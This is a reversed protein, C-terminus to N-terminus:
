STPGGADGRPARGRTATDRLATAFADAGAKRRETFSARNWAEWRVDFAVPAGGGGTGGAGAVAVGIRDVAVPTPRGGVPVVAVRSSPDGLGLLGWPLRLTLRALGDAAPPALAWTALTDGTRGTLAGADDARVLNGVELLEAGRAPAAGRAPYPRNLTLRQLAWGDADPRPLAAPPLGDLRLPDLESRVLAAATGAAPDVRVLVDFRPDAGLGPVARGGPVVDFGLVVPAPLEGLHDLRLHVWSADHDLVIRTFGADAEHVTREGVRAPDHALLGFFQENTLVDHWLARREPDAVAHRPLTNWTFKFWEDTWAFLLGGALGLEAFSALMAADTSMAETETHNGQDRGNTGVHASGLSSPVGFETVMLPMGAHHRVLDRVYALYPDASGGGAAPRVYSPQLRQFDPYYPYAHYSAFTGGPWATHARVHNADVGVLDERDLPEDPHSLPDTTPWNVLAIPVSLGHRAEHGALEDMRAAVWRETPSADPASSFYTGRHAPRAANRADSAATAVPDWEVGVIWAAVWPSVDATWAGSARGRRPARRLTGHVAASADRIEQVMARTPADAFLDQHELYSEDPLYIGQVLYLPDDPHAENHTRLEAYMHPPHITYIRVVRVGDSRMMAFWRRYDEATIALEGPSHGPTTSGLNVGAWFTADGGATHLRLTTGDQTALCSLAGRTVPRPRWSPEDAAAGGTAPAAGPTCGAMGASLIGGGLLSASLFARRPISPTSM